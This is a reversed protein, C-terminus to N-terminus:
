HRADNGTCSVYYTTGSALVALYAVAGALVIMRVVNGQRIAFRKM